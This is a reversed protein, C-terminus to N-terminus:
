DEKWGLYNAYVTSHRIYDGYTSSFMGHEIQEWTVTEDDVLVYYDYKEFLSTANPADGTFHLMYKYSVEDGTDESKSERTKVTYQQGDFEVLYFYLQPFDDKEEEYLEESVYEKDLTYYHACLVSAAKGKSTKRCFEDWVKQGSTCGRFEFVVTDTKKSMELAEEATMVTNFLETGSKQKRACSCFMMISIAIILCVIIKRMLIEEKDRM